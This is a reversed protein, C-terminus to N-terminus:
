EELALCFCLAGERRRGIRERERERGDPAVAEAASDTRRDIKRVSQQMYIAHQVPHVPRASHVCTHTPAHRM